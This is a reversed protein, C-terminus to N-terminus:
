QVTGGRGGYEKPICLSMPHASMIKALVEKPLGRQISLQDIDNDQHFATELTSKFKNIFSEFSKQKSAKEPSLVLSDSSKSYTIQM